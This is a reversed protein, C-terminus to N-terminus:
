VPNEAVELLAPHRRDRRDRPDAGAAPRPDRGAAVQADAGLGRLEAERDRAREAVAERHRVDAPEGARRPDLVDDERRAHDLRPLRERDPEQGLDDLVRGGELAAGLFEGAGDGAMRRQRQARGLLRHSAQGLAKGALLALVQDQHAVHAPIEPFAHLGEQVLARRLPSALLARFRREAPPSITLFIIPGNLPKFTISRVWTMAPGVQVMISASMPASTMLISRLGPPSSVRRLTGGFIRPSDAAKMIIFRLLRPSTRSRLVSPPASTSRRSAAFASTSTSFKPGPTM